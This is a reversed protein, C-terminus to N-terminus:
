HPCRLNDILRVQGLWAAGLAILAATDPGAAPGLDQARRLTLYDPRLGHQELLARGERELAVPDGGRAAGEALLRLARHLAPARGREEASLLGNRSSLALGDPERVTPVGIVEVEFDLDAVLRRILLLQQYDKEGFIAVHPQVLNLLKTVVTAVGSFHGPRSAGELIASLGPVEVRTCASGAPYLTEVGPAFVLDVGEGTLRALDAELSRPYAALDEPRDFQLPNVFISVVVREALRTARRVLALHGDHLNGM